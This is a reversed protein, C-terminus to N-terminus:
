RDLLFLVHWLQLKWDNGEQDAGAGSLSLHFADGEELPTPPRHLLLVATLCHLRHERQAHNVVIDDNTRRDADFAAKSTGSYM